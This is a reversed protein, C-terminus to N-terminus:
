SAFCKNLEKFYHLAPLFVEKAHVSANIASGICPFSELDYSDKWTPKVTYYYVGQIWIDTNIIYHGKHETGLHKFHNSSATGYKIIHSPALILDDRRYWNNETGAPMINKEIFM